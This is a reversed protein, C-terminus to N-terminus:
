KSTALGTVGCPTTQFCLPPMATSTLSVHAFLLATQFVALSPVLIQSRKPLAKWLGKNKHTTYAAGYPEGYASLLKNSCMHWSTPFAM